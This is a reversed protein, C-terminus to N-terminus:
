QYYEYQDRLFHDQTSPERLQSVYCTLALAKIAPWDKEFYVLKSSRSKGAKTYTLYRTTPIDWELNGILNHDVNGDPEPAPAFVHEFPGYRRVFSNLRDRLETEELANDPIRLFRVDINGLIDMAARTETHRQAATIGKAAQRASDTVILVMPRERLITFCGFLVEDDNHPSIFLKMILSKGSFHVRKHAHNTHFM